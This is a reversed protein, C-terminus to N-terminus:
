PLAASHSTSSIDAYPDEPPLGGPFVNNKKAPSEQKDYQKNAVSFQKMRVFNIKLPRLVRMKNRM